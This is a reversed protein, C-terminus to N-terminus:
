MNRRIWRLYESVRTYVGPFEQRACEVGFSTIGVVSWSGSRDSVMM